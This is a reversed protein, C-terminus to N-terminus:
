SGVAHWALGVGCCWHLVRGFWCRLSGGLWVWVGVGVCLASMSVWAHVLFLSVWGM